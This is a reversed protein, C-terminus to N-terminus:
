SLNQIDEFHQLTINGRSLHWVNKELSCFFLPYLQVSWPSVGHRSFCILCLDLSCNQSLTSWRWGSPVSGAPFKSMYIVALFCLSVRVVQPIWFLPAARGEEKIPLQGTVTAFPCNQILFVITQIAAWFDQTGILFKIWLQRSAHTKVSYSICNSRYRPFTWLSRRALQVAWSLTHICASVSSAAGAAGAGHRARVCTRVDVRAVAGCGTGAGARNVTRAEAGARRPGVLSMGAAAAQRHRHQSEM